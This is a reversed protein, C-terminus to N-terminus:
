FGSPSQVARYILIGGLAGFGVSAIIVVLAHTHRASYHDNKDPAPAPDAMLDVRYATNDALAYTHEGVQLQLPGHLSSVILRDPGLVTIRAHTPESTKPRVVADAARLEFTQGPGSAFGMTGQELIGVVGAPGDEFTAASSALLYGQGAGARVRIVGDAATQLKDGAYLTAGGVATTGGLQAGKAQIVMGLSASPAALAPTEILGASLIAILLTRVITRM